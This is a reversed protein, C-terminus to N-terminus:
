HSVKLNNIVKNVGSTKQAVTGAQQRQTESSVTGTLKATQNLVTVNIRNGQTLGSNLMRLRVRAAVSNDDLNQLGKQVLSDNSRSREKTLSLQNVVSKVGEVESALASARNKQATNNVLGKLYVVGKTVDVDINTNDMTKDHLLRLKVQTSLSADEVRREIGAVAPVTLPVQAISLLLVVVTVKPLLSLLAKRSM